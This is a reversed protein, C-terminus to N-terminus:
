ELLKDLREKIKLLNQRHHERVWGDYRNDNMDYAIGNVLRLILNVIADNAEQEIENEELDSM